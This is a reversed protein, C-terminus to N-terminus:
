CRSYSGSDRAHTCAHMCVLIHVYVHVCTERPRFSPGHSQSNKGFLSSFSGLFTGKIWNGSVPRLAEDWQKM